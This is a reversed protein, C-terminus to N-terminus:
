MTNGQTMQMANHRKNVEAYLQGVLSEPDILANWRNHWHYTYSAPFFQALSIRTKNSFFDDFTNCYGNVRIRTDNAIWVPDFVFSPLICMDTLIEDIEPFALLRKPHCDRLSITRKALAEANPSNPALHLLASNGYPQNSWQYFFDRTRLKSLDHLFLVDFDFYVGGYKALILLRFGDTFWKRLIDLHGEYITGRAENKPVYTRFCINHCGQFSAIFERNMEISPPSLWVWIRCSQPQTILISKLCLRHLTTLRGHWVGHFLNSDLPAGGSISSDFHACYAGYSQYMDDPKLRFITMTAHHIIRVNRM